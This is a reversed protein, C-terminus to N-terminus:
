NKVLQNMNSLAEGFYELSYVHPGYIAGRSGIPLIMMIAWPKRRILCSKMPYFYDYGVLNYGRTIYFYSSDIVGSNSFQGIFVWM